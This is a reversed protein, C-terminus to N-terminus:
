DNGRLASLNEEAIRVRVHGGIPRAAEEAHGEGSRGTGDRRYARRKFRRCTCTCTGLCLLVREYQYLRMSLSLSLSSEHPSKMRVIATASAEPLSLPAGTQVGPRYPSSTRKKRDRYKSTGTSYRYVYMTRQCLAAILWHGAVVWRRGTGIRQWRGRLRGIGGCGIGRSIGIGVGIGVRIGKGRRRLM